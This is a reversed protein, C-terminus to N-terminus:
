GDCGSADTCPDNLATVTSDGAIVSIVILPGPAPPICVALATRPSRTDIREADRAFRPLAAGALDDVVDLRGEIEVKFDFVAGADKAFDRGREAVVIDRHRLKLWCPM